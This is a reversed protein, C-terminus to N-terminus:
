EISDEIFKWKYGYVVVDPDSSYLAKSLKYATKTNNEPNSVIFTTAASISHFKRILIGTDPSFMGVPKGNKVGIRLRAENSVSHTCLGKKGKNWPIRGKMSESMHQRAAESKSKGTLKISIKDRADQSLSKHSKGKKALSLLNRHEETFKRGQLWPKPVGKQAKSMRLRADESVTHNWCGDGGSTLNYGDEQSNYFCILEKEKSYAEELSLGSFLIEHSFGTEWGYKCIANWFHKNGRYGSGDKGWREEASKKTIGVYHKNNHLNTHLYVIYTDM